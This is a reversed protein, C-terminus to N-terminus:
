RYIIEPGAARPQGFFEGFYAKKHMLWEPTGIAERIIDSWTGMGFLPLGVKRCMAMTSAFLYDPPLSNKEALYAIWKFGIRAHLAEDNNIVLFSLAEDKRGAQALDQALAINNEVANAEQLLQQVILGDLLNSAANFRDIVTNTYPFTTLEGGRETYIDFIYSAHRAEDWVQRAMDFVFEDPMERYKLAMYSCVEMASIEVDVLVYFLFGLFNTEEAIISGNEPFRFPKNQSRQLIANRAPVAPLANQSPQDPNCGCAAFTDAIQALVSLEPGFLVYGKLEKVLETAKEAINDSASNKTSSATISTQLLPQDAIEALRGTTRSVMELLLGLTLGLEIKKEIMPEVIIQRCTQLVREVAASNANCYFEKVELLDRM